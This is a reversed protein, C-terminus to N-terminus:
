GRYRSRSATDLPRFKESSSKIPACRASPGTTELNEMSSDWLVTLAIGMCHFLRSGQKVIKGRDKVAVENEMSADTTSCKASLTVTIMRKQYDFTILRMSAVMRKVHRSQADGLPFASDVIQKLEVVSGLVPLLHAGCAGIKSGISSSM